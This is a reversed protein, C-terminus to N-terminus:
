PGAAHFDGVKICYARMDEYRKLLRAPTSGFRHVRADQPQENPPTTM